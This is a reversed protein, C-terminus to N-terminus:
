RCRVRRPLDGAVHRDHGGKRRYCEPRQPYHDPQGFRWEDVHRVVLHHCETADLNGAICNPLVSSTLGECVSWQTGLNSPAVATTTATAALPTVLVTREATACLTGNGAQLRVIQSGAAGYQTTFSAGSGGSPSGSPALSGSIWSSWTRGTVTGSISATCTVPGNVQVLSPTCDLSTITPATAPLISPKPTRPTGRQRRPSTPRAPRWAGSSM